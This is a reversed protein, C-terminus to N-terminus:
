RACAHARARDASERVIPARGTLSCAGALSARACCTCSRAGRQLVGARFPVGLRVCLRARKATLPRRPHPFLPRYASAASSPRASSTCPDPGGARVASMARSSRFYLPWREEGRLQLAIMIGIRRNEAL